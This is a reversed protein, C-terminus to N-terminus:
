DELFQRIKDRTLKTKKKVLLGILKELQTEYVEKIENCISM